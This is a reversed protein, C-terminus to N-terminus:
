CRSAVWVARTPDVFSWFAAATAALLLVGALFPAAVRDAARLTPPRRSLASRLLAVIGEYRTDAGLRDVRQLVPARLNLSGAIAEDGPGKEVPRSEGTLLAEDVATSGKSCPV